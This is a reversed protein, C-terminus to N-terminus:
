CAVAGRTRRHTNAKSCICLTTTIARRRRPAANRAGVAASRTARRLRGTDRTLRGPLPRVDGLLAHM